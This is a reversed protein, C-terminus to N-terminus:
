QPTPGNPISFGDPTTKTNIYYEMQGRQPKMHREPLAQPPISANNIVKKNYFNAYWFMGIFFLGAIIIEYPKYKIDKHAM